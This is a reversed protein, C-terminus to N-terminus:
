PCHVTFGREMAWCAFRWSYLTLVTSIIIYTHQISFSNPHAGKVLWTTHNRLQTKWQTHLILLVRCTYHLLTIHDHNNTKFLVPLLAHLRSQGSLCINTKCRRCKPCIPVQTGQFSQKPYLFLWLKCRRWVLQTLPKLALLFRESNWPPSNM